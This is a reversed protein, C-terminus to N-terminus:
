RWALRAGREPGCPPPKEVQPYNQDRILGTVLKGERSGKEGSLSPLPPRRSARAARRTRPHLPRPAGSSHAGAAHRSARRGGQSGRAARLRPGRTRQASALAHGGGGGRGGGRSVHVTRTRARLRDPPCVTRLLRETSASAPSQASSGEGLGAPDSLRGGADAHRGADTSRSMRPVPASCVGPLSLAPAVRGARAAPPACSSAPRGSSPSLAQPMRQRLGSNRPGRPISAMALRPHSSVAADAKRDTQMGRAGGCGRRARQEASARLSQRSGGERQASRAAPLEPVARELGAARLHVRRQAPPSKRIGSDQLQDPRAPRALRLKDQVHTSGVDQGLRKLAHVHSTRWGARQVTKTRGPWPRAATSDHKPSQSRM